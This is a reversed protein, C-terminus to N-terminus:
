YPTVRRDIQLLFRQNGILVFNTPVGPEHWSQLPIATLQDMTYSWRNPYTADNVYVTQTPRAGQSGFRPTSQQSTESPPPNESHLESPGQLPALPAASVPRPGPHEIIREMLDPPTVYHQLTGETGGESRGTTLSHERADATSYVHIIGAADVLFDLQMVQDYDGRFNVHSYHRPALDDFRTLINRRPDDSGVGMERGILELTHYIMGAGPRSFILDGQQDSQAVSELLPTAEREVARVAAEYASRNTETVGTGRIIENARNRAEVLREQNAALSPDRGSYTSHREVVVHAHFLDRSSVGTFPVEEITYPGDVQMRVALGGAYLYRLTVLINAKVPTPVWGSDSAFLLHRRRARLLAYDAVSFDWDDGTAGTDIAREQQYQISQRGSAAYNQSTGIRDISSQQIVHTLEHALLRRGRSIGPAFQNAGFVVNSGVTYANANVDRASQNAIHDSHVRVHSFDHGFRSEMDQRVEPELRQGLSSLARVVSSPAEIVPRMSSGTCHQIRLPTHNTAFNSPASMVHDAIQDAEQELPDNSSGIPLKRQLGMKSKACKSCEGDLATHNGCACKRKMLNSSTLLPNGQPQTRTKSAIENM